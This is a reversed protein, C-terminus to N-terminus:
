LDTGSVQAPHHLPEIVPRALREVESCGMLHEEFGLFNYKRSSDVDHCIRTFWDM